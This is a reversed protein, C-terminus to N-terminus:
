AAIPDATSLLDDSQETRPIYLLSARNERKLRTAAFTNVSDVTVAHYNASQENLREPDGFFMAFMSLRDARESALQMASVMETEILAVARDVENQQVGDTVLLDLERNVQTELEEPLTEPRAIM